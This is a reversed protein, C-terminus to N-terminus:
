MRFHLRAFTLKDNKLRLVGFSSIVNDMATKAIYDGHKSDNPFFHLPPFLM